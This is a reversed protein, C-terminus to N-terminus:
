GMVGFRGIRDADVFSLNTLQVVNAGSVMRYIPQADAFHGEDILHGM